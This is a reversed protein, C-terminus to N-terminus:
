ETPTSIAMASTHLASANVFFADYNVGNRVQAHKVQMYLQRSVVMLWLGDSLMGVTYGVLVPTSLAVQVGLRVLCEQLTNSCECYM